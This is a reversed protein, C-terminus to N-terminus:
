PADSSLLEATRIRWVGLIREAGPVKGAALQRRIHEPTVQLLVAAQRVTLYPLEALENPTKTVM